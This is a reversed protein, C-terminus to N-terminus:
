AENEGDEGAWGEVTNWITDGYFGKEPGGRGAEKVKGDADYLQEISINSTDRYYGQLKEEDLIVAIINVTYEFDEESRDYLSLNRFIPNALCEGNLLFVGRLIELKSLIYDIRPADALALAIEFMPHGTDAESLIIDAIRYGGDTYGAVYQPLIERMFDQYIEEKAEYSTAKELRKMYPILRSDPIVNAWQKKTHTKRECDCDVPCTFYFYKGHWWCDGKECTPALIAALEEAKKQAAEAEKQAAEAKAVEPDVRPPTRTVTIGSAELVEKGIGKLKDMFGM